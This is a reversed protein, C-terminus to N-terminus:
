KVIIPLYFATQGARDVLLVSTLSQNGGGVILLTLAAGSQLIFPPLDLVATSCGPTAVTWDYPGAPLPQYGSQTLYVLGTFGPVPAGAQTCIDVAPNPITGNASALHLVRVLGTGATPPAPPPLTGGPPITGGPVTQKLSAANIWSGSQGALVLLLVFLLVYCLGRGLRYLECRTLLCRQRNASIM